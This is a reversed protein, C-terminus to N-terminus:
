KRAEEKLMMDEHIKQQVIRAANGVFTVRDKDVYIEYKKSILVDVFGSRKYQVRYKCHTDDENKITAPYTCVEKFQDAIKEHLSKADAGDSRARYERVLTRMLRLENYNVDLQM